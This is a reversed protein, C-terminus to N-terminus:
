GRAQARPEPRQRPHGDLARRADRRRGAAELRATAGAFDSTREMISLAVQPDVDSAVPIPQYPSGNWCVPPPKAGEAGCTKLRDSIQEEPVDLIRALRTIMAAGDDDQRSLENRDITVVISTRNSVLPRGVQDLILGRVAPEVVERVTNNAAAVRYEEGTMIQLYYLRAFLTVVLSVVLVSLVALRLNSREGV